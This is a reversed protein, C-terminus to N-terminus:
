LENHDGDPIILNVVSDSQGHVIHRRSHTAVAGILDVPGYFFSYKTNLNELQMEGSRDTYFVDQKESIEKQLMWIKGYKFDLVCKMLLELCKHSGLNSLRQVARSGWNISVDTGAYKLYYRRQSQPRKSFEDITIKEGDELEIINSCIPTSFIILDRIEDTFYDRTKKWFPLVLPAKQDFLIYPPFDYKFNSNDQNLRLNFYNESCLGFFSHSRVFNCVPRLFKEDNGKPQRFAMVDKDIGWYRIDPRTQQIFYRIGVPISANDILYCIIPPEGLYEKLQRTFESAPSVDGVTYELLHYRQYMLEMEGWLSGPCQIEAIKGLSMEDTRFFVPRTYHCDKLNQHYEIGFSEPTENLLWHLLEKDNESLAKRFLSICRDQFDHILTLRGRAKEYDAISIRNPKAALLQTFGIDSIFCKNYENDAWQYSNIEKVLM